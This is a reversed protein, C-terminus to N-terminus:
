DVLSKKPVCYTCAFLNYTKRFIDICVPFLVQEVQRGYLIMAHALSNLSFTFLSLLEKNMSFDLVLIYIDNM